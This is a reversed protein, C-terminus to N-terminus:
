QIWLLFFIWWFCPLMVQPFPQLLNDGDLNIIIM